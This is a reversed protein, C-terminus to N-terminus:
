FLTHTFFFDFWFFSVDEVDRLFVFCEKNKKLMRKKEVMGFIRFLETSFFADGFGFTTGDSFTSM